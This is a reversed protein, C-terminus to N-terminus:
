HPISMAEFHVLSNTQHWTLRFEEAQASSVQKNNVERILQRIARASYLKPRGSSKKKGYVEKNKVYNMVVNHYRNIQRAIERISCKTKVLDDVKGKEYETLWKNKGM